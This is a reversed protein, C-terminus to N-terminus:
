QTRHSQEQCPPALEPSDEPHTDTAQSYAFDHLFDILEIVSQPDNLYEEITLENSSSSSTNIPKDQHQKESVALNEQHHREKMAMNERHHQEDMALKEQHHQEASESDLRHHYSTQAFTIIFIFLPMLLQILEIRKMQVKNEGAAQVRDQPIDVIESLSEFAERTLEARDDIVEIGSVATGLNIKFLSAGMEAVKSTVNNILPNDGTNVFASAENAINIIVSANTEFINEFSPLANLSEINTFIGANTITSVTNASDHIGPPLTSIARLTSDETLYSGMREANALVHINSKAVISQCMDILNMLSRPLPFDDDDYLTNGM